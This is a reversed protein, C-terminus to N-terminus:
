GARQECSSLPTDNRERKGSQSRSKIYLKDQSMHDAQLSGKDRANTSSKPFLLSIWNPKIYKTNKDSQLKIPHTYYYHHYYPPSYNHLRQQNPPPFQGLRSGTDFLLSNFSLFSFPYFVSKCCSSHRVCENSFHFRFAMWCFVSFFDSCPSLITCLSHPCLFILYFIPSM